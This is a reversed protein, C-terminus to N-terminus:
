ANINAELVDPRLRWSQFPQRLLSEDLRRLEETFERLLRKGPEDLALYSYDAVLQARKVNLNFNANVLRQYVDLPERSGDRYVRIPHKHVWMQYNWMCTGLAEHQVSALYIYSAMLRSLGAKSLPTGCIATVGNPTIKDLQNVWATLDEDTCVRDDSDYYQDVYRVAHAHIVDFIECLNNQVPTDIEFGEPERTEWDLYPDIVSIRYQDYTDRFLDCMGKHTFVFTTEFDGGPAMQGLTVLDNSFQTGFMHAWLGRKIPHRNPLENRTAIAFAGGAALHIWNFHRIMALHGSVASMTIHKAKIWNEDRPTVSGLECDIRSAKLSRGNQEFTVKTGVSYVGSHVEYRDLDSLDWVLAGDRHELYIAYPSAVALDGLEPEDPAYVDPLIPPAFLKRHAKTYAEDLAAGADNAVSPLGEQMPPYLKYLGVQMKYVTKKLQSVEDAPVKDAVLINDIPITPVSRSLAIPVLKTTDTPEPIHAPKNGKFKLVSIRNWFGRRLRWSLPRKENAM